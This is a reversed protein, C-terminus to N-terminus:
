TKSRKAIWVAPYFVVLVPLIELRGAWMDIILVAKMLWPLSAETLGSSLGVTGLASSCEFFANTVDYGAFVFLLVSLFILFLYLILFSFIQQVERNSIVRGEYKVPIKAEEPLLAREVLWRVVRIVIIFRFIKIGGATSGASGGLIMLFITILYISRPWTAPQVLSFGTTTIATTAHFLSPLLMKGQWGWAGFYIFTTVAIIIFLYRIQLDRFFQRFGEHRLLYYAPFGIAGSIMFLVVLLHLVTGSYYGVSQAYPSFGGTSVTSMVYLMSDFVGLGAAIFAGFGVITLVLYVQFVIRATAKVDGVLNEEGFESAYLRFANRGPGILIILSMIVIGAGGLWQSYSRFFLLTKPLKQVDMVSLGTTTFGSMSEFLGNLYSAVPLFAFAGVLSFLLYSLATVVLAEKGTLEEARLLAGLRGIGYSAAALGGFIFSYIFEGAVLSVVFPGTLALGLLRLTMGLNALVTRLNVPQIFRALPM